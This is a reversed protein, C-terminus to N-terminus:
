FLKAATPVAAPEDFPCTTTGTLPCVGTRASRTTKCELPTGPAPSIVLVLDLALVLVVLLALLSTYQKGSNSVVIM